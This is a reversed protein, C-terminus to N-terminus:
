DQGYQDKMRTHISIPVNSKKLFNQENMTRSGGMEHKKFRENLNIENM